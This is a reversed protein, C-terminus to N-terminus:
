CAHASRVFLLHAPACLAHRAMTFWHSAKVMLLVKHNPTEPRYPLLARGHIFGTLQLEDALSKRPALKAPFGSTPSVLQKCCCDAKQLCCNKCLDAAPPAPSLQQQKVFPVLKQAHQQPSWDPSDHAFVKVHVGQQISAFGFAVPVALGKNSFKVDTTVIISSM